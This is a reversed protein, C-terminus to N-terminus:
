NREGSQLEEMPSGVWRSSALGHAETDQSGPGGGPVPYMIFFPISWHDPANTLRGRQGPGHGAAPPRNIRASATREWRGAPESSAMVCGPELRRREQRSAGAGCHGRDGTGMRGAPRRRLGLGRRPSRSIGLLLLWDSHGLPPRQCWLEFFLRSIANPLLPGQAM